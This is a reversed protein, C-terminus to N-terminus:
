YDYDNINLKKSETRNHKTKGKNSKKLSFDGNSLVSMSKEAALRRRKADPDLYKIEDEKKLLIDNASNLHISYFLGKTELAAVAKEVDQIALGAKQKGEINANDRIRKAIIAETCLAKGSHHEIAKLIENQIQNLGQEM